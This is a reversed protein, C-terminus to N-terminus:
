GGAEEFLGGLHVVQECYWCRKDGAATLTYAAPLYTEKSTICKAYTCLSQGAVAIRGAEAAAVPEAEPRVRMVTSGLGVPHSREQTDAVGLLAAMLAMRVPVGGAAQEFYAARSDDDVETAIENVRPLPHMVIMGNPAERMVDATLIFANKVLEYEAADEFRERQVRTMYLMDLGPLGDAFSNVEAPRHGSLQECEDLVEAPMRLQPPAICVVDSGFRAMIPALSHVTRGYKLDGCLGIKLGDLRGHRRRLCFLDTLTQTPHEHPGDGGNIVPIRACDAAVRAAGALPHRIVIIDSYGEVMRITDGLTEGKMVSSAEPGGLCLVQGGLRLMASEFSLRTRTSPEFFLTALIRDLPESTAKDGGGFGIAEAMDDAIDLLRTIQTVSLDKLTILDRGALSV